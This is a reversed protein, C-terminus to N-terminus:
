AKAIQRVQGDLGREQLGVVRDVDNDHEGKGGGGDHGDDTQEGEEEKGEGRELREALRSRGAVFALVVLATVSVEEVHVLDGESVDLSSLLMNADGM